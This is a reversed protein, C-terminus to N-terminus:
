AGGSRYVRDLAMFGFTAGDVELSSGVCPHQPSPYVKLTNKIFATLGPAPLALPGNTMGM